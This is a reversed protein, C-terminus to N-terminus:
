SRDLKSSYYSTVVEVSNHTTDNILEFNVTSLLESGAEGIGPQKVIGNLNLAIHNDANPTANGWYIQIYHDNGAMYNYFANSSGYISDGFPISLSLTGNIKGMTVEYANEEDYYKAELNSSLSLELDAAEIANTDLLIICDQFKLPDPAASISDDFSSYSSARDGSNYYISIYQGSYSTIDSSSFNLNGTTNSIEVSGAGLSDPDTFDADTAINAITSDLVTFNGYSTERYASAGTPITGDKGLKFNLRPSNSIQGIITTRDFRLASVSATLSMVEGQAGSIKLSPVLGGWLEYSARDNSVVSGSDPTARVISLYVSPEAVTYPIMTYRYYSGVTTQTGGQFFTKGFLSLLYSDLHCSFPISSFTKKPIVIEGTTSESLGTTRPVYQIRTPFSFAPVGKTLIRFIGDGVGIGNTIDFSTRSNIDATEEIFLLDQWTVRTGM